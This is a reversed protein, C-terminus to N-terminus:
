SISWGLLGRELLQNEFYEEWHNRDESTTISHCSNCLAVVDPYCNEKDYHIHHISLKRGGLLQERGCLQCTYDDRKRVAEKFKNNFKHCYPESSIGGRWVGNKEGSHAESITRLEIGYNKMWSGVVTQCVGLEKAIDYQSMEMEWYMQYLEEESLMHTGVLHSESKTRLEINNRTILNRITGSDVGFEKAIKYSSMGKELYMHKLEKVSPINVAGFQAESCTRSEIGYKQMWYWVTRTVVGITEAIEPQTMGQDWYMQHLEDKSIM